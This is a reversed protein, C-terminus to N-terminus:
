NKPPRLDEVKTLPGIFKKMTEQLDDESEKAFLLVSPGGEIGLQTRTDIKIPQDELLKECNMRSLGLIILTQGDDTGAVAKIM